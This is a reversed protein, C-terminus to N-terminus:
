VKSFKLGEDNSYCNQCHLRNNRVRVDTGHEGNGLQVSCVCCKFCRIHYFLRLSEIIMAAGRGLEDKCASCKKKGSVSLVREQSDGPGSRAPVQPVVPGNGSEPRAPPVVPPIQMGPWPAVYGSSNRSYNLQTADINAYINESALNKERQQLDAPLKVLQQQHPPLQHPQPPNLNVNVGGELNNNINEIKDMTQKQKQKAENIRRQEAEQILWHKSYDKCESRRRNQLDSDTKQGINAMSPLAPLASAPSRTTPATETKPATAPTPKGAMTADRISASSSRSHHIKAGNKDTTPTTLEATTQSYQTSSSSSILPFQQSQASQSQTHVSTNTSSSSTSTSSEEIVMSNTATNINAESPSSAPNVSSPQASQNFQHNSATSQSFHNVGTSKVRIEQRSRHERQEREERELSEIIEREQEALAEERLSEQRALLDDRPNEEELCPPPVPPLPPPKESPPALKKPSPIFDEASFVPKSKEELKSFSEELADDLLKDDLSDDGESSLSNQQFFKNNQITNMLASSSTSRYAKYSGLSGSGGSGIGAAVPDSERRGRGGFAAALGAVSGGVGSGGNGNAVSASASGSSTTTEYKKFVSLKDRFSNDAPVTRSAVTGDPPTPSLSDATGDPQQFSALKSRMKDSLETSSKRVANTASNNPQQAFSELREELSSEEEHKKTTTVKEVFSIKSASTSFSGGSLKGRTLASSTPSKGGDVDGSRTPPSPSLSSLSSLPPSEVGCDEEQKEKLQDQETEKNESEINNTETGTNNELPAKNSPNGEIWDDRTSESLHTQAFSRYSEIASEYPNSSTSSTAAASRHDGNVKPVLNHDPEVSEASGNEKVASNNHSKTNPPPDSVDNSGGDAAAAGTPQSPNSSQAAPPDDKSEDEENIFAGTDDSPLDALDIEDDQQILLGIKRGISKYSSNGDSIKRKGMGANTDMEEIRRIESVRSLAEESQKRRRHKWNDLNSQWEPTEEGVKIEKKKKRVEEVLLLQKQASILLPNSNVRTFQGPNYAPKNALIGSSRTPIFEHEKRQFDSQRSETSSTSSQNDELSDESNYRDQALQPGPALGRGTREGYSGVKVDIGPM